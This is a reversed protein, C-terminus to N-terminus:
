LAYVFDKNERDTLDWFESGAEKRYGPKMTEKEKNRNQSSLYFFLLVMDIVCAGFLAIITIEAPMFRPADKTRFTQPGIINGM